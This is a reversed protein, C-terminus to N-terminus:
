VQASGGEAAMVAAIRRNAERWTGTDVRPLVNDWVPLSVGRFQMMGEPRALLWLHLHAAGDGWKAVHVRSIGGLSMVAREVRQLMPGIEAAREAPLDGLDHHGRPFLLVVAPLGPPRETGSLRWHEDTWLFDADPRSCLDCSDAGAEGHRDPEPVVPQELARARIDQGDFPFIDWTTYGDARLAVREGVPLRYTSDETTMGCLSGSGHRPPRM